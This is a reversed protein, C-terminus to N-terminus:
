FAILLSGDGASTLEHVETQAGITKSTKSQVGSLTHKLSDKVQAATLVEDNPSGYLKRIESRAPSDSFEGDDVNLHYTSDDNVWDVVGESM